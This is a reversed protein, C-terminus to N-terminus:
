KWPMSAADWSQSRQTMPGLLFSTRSGLTEGASTAAAVSRTSAIYSCLSSMTPLRRAFAVGSVSTM